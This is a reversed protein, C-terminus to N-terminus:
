ALDAFLGETRRFYWLGGALLLLTVAGSAILMPGPPPGGLLSWRFGEIVGVMPNLGYLTRWEEPVLSAPYVVPTAFMGLQILFPLLYRVDRYRVNLAAMWLGLSLAAAVAMLAFAPVALAAPGPAVGYYVMLAGMAALAVAFDMLGVATAALPMILRPFYIKAVLNKNAVLSNSSESLSFTFLQWPLLGALAFLPYPLGDSPLGALRGFFVTFTLTAALPQLLAWCAGIATQKYRVKIDRWALFWLLERYAWLEAATESRGPGIRVHVVPLVDSVAPASPEAAMLRSPESPIIDSM